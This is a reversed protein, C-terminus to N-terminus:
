RGARWGPAGAERESWSPSKSTFISGVVGPEQGLCPHPPGHSHFTPSTKESRPQRSASTAGVGPEGRTTASPTTKRPPTEPASTEPHPPDSKQTELGQGYNESFGLVSAMRVGPDVKGPEELQSVPSGSAHTMHPSPLLGLIPFFHHTRVEPGGRPGAPFAPIGPDRPILGRDHTFESGGFRPEQCGSGLPKQLRTPSLGPAWLGAQCARTGQLQPPADGQMKPYRLRGM